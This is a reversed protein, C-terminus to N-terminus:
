GMGPINITQYIQGSLNEDTIIPDPVTLELILSHPNEDLVRIEAVAYSPVFVLSLLIIQSILFVSHSFSKNM